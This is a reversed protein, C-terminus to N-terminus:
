SEEAKQEEKRENRRRYCSFYTTYKNYVKKGNQLLSTTLKRAKKSANNKKKRLLEAIKEFPSIIFSFIRCVITFSQRFINEALYYMSNRYLIYALGYAPIFFSRLQFSNADFISGSCIVAFFVACLFFTAKPRSLIRYTFFYIMHCLAMLFIGDSFVKFFIRLSEANDTYM